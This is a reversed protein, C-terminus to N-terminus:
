GDIRIMQQHVNEAEALENKLHKIREASKIELVRLDIKDMIDKIVKIGKPFNMQTFYNKAGLLTKLLDNTPDILEALVDQLITKDHLDNKGGAIKSVENIALTRIQDEILMFGWMRLYIWDNVQHMCEAIEYAANEIGEDRMAKLLTHADIHRDMKLMVEFMQRYVGDFNNPKLFFVQGLCNFQIICGLIKKQIEIKDM